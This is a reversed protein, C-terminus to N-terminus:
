DDGDEERVLHGGYCAAIGVLAGYYVAVVGSIFIVALSSLQSLFGFERQAIPLPLGVCLALILAIALAEGGSVKRLRGTMYGSSIPAVLGLGIHTLLTPILFIATLGVALLTARAVRGISELLSQQPSAELADTVTATDNSGLLLQSTSM